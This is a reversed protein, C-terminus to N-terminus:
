GLVPGALPGPQREVDAEVIGTAGLDDIGGAGENRSAGIRGLDGLRMEGLVEVGRALRVDVKHNAGAAVLPGAVEEQPLRCVGFEGETGLVPRVEAHRVEVLSELVEGTALPPEPASGISLVRSSVPMIRAGSITATTRSPSGHSERM